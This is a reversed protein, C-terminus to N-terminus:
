VYIVKTKDINLTHTATAYSRPHTPCIGGAQGALRLL